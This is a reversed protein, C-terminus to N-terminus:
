EGSNEDTDDMKDKLHSFIHHKESLAVDVWLDSDGGFNYDSGADPDVVQSQTEEPLKDYVDQPILVIGANPERVIYNRLVDWDEKPVVIVDAAMLIEKRRYNILRQNFKVHRM